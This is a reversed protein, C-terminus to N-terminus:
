NIELKQKKERHQLSISNFRSKQIVLPFDKGSLNINYNFSEMEKFANLNIKKIDIAGIFQFNSIKGILYLMVLGTMFADIGANHKIELKTSEDGSNEKNREHILPVSNSYKATKSNEKKVYFNFIKKLDHNKQCQKDLLKSCYGHLYYQNCITKENLETSDSFQFDELYINQDFVIEFYIKDNLKKM